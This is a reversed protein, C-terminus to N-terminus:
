RRRLTVRAVPSEDDSRAADIVRQYEANAKGIRAAVRADVKTTVEDHVLEAWRDDPLGLDRLQELTEVDWTIRAAYTVEARWGDALQLTRAGQRSAEQAIADTLVGKADRLRNEIERITNLAHACANADTLVVLEGTAPNVLVEDATPVAPVTM